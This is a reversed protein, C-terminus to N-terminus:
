KIEPGWSHVIKPTKMVVSGDPYFRFYFGKLRKTSSICYNLSPKDWYIEITNDMRHIEVKSGPYINYLNGDAAYSSCKREEFEFM